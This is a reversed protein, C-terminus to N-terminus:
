GDGTKSDGQELFLQRELERRRVLGPLVKGGAQDWRPLQAAAASYAGANLMRLLTSGQFAGVGENFVFDCLADFQNQTLKVHVAHNVTSEAWVVDSKLWENAEEQSCKMGGTIAHTHGYGITWVGVSDQYSHLVCGECSRILSLGKESVKM